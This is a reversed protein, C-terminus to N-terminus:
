ELAIKMGTIYIEHQGVFSSQTGIFVWFGGDADTTLAAPQTKLTTTRMGFTGPSPCGTLSNRIDGLQLFEGGDAGSGKDLELRVIGQGDTATLPEVESLGAKVFTLPGPGSTCGAHYNTVIDVQLSIQYSELAAFGTFRRKQFLFLDGSVNTGRLYLAYRTTVLPAPLFQVAGFAGVASAQAEPYDAAGFIWNERVVNFDFTYAQTTRTDCASISGAALLGAILFAVRTM